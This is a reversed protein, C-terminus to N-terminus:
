HLIRDWALSKNRRRELRAKKKREEQDKYVKTGDAFVFGTLPAVSIKDTSSINPLQDAIWRDNNVDGLLYRELTDPPNFLTQRNVMKNMENFVEVTISKLEENLKIFGKQGNCYLSQCTFPCRVATSGDLSGCEMDAYAVTIQFGCLILIFIQKTLSYLKM